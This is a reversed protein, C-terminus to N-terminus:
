ESNAEAELIIGSMHLGRDVNHTLVWVQGLRDTLRTGSKLDEPVSYAQGIMLQSSGDSRTGPEAGAVWMTHDPYHLTELPEFNMVRSQVMGEHLEGQM